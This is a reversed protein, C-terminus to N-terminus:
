ITPKVVDLTDDQSVDVLKEEEVEHTLEKIQMKIDNCESMKQKLFSITLSDKAELGQPTLEYLYKFKNKSEKFHNIKIFGKRSLESLCYNVKGLSVGMNDAMERQSLHADQRLLKLMRYRVEQNFANNM